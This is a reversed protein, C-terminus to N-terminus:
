CRQLIAYMHYIRLTFDKIYCVQSLNVLQAVSGPYMMLEWLSFYSLPYFHVSRSSPVPYPWEFQSHVRQLALSFDVIGLPSPSTSSQPSVASM